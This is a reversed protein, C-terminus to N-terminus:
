IKSLEPITNQKQIYEKISKHILFLYPIGLNTELLSNIVLPLIGVPRVGSLLLVAEWSFQVIIGILLLYLIPIQKQNKNQVNYILVYGYGIILFVLMVWHYSGTERSINIQTFSSGLAQSVFAVVLWGGIILGSWSILRKDKDLFLWIWAINTFGYSTSLWFLFLVTNAGNVERTGLLLYFIGYDVLFYILAGAVGFIFALKRKYRLLLYGFVILFGIDLLIFLLNLERAVLYNLSM